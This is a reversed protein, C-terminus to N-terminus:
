LVGVQKKIFHKFICIDIWYRCIHKLVIKTRIHHAMYTGIRIITIYYSNNILRYPANFLM